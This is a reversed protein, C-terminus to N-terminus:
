QLCDHHPNTNPLNSSSTLISEWTLHSDTLGSLRTDIAWRDITPTASASLKRSANEDEYRVNTNKEYRKTCLKSSTPTSM